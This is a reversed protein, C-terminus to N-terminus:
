EELRVDKLDFTSNPNTKYGKVKSHTAALLESTFLPLAPVEGMITPLVDDQVLQVREEPTSATGARDIVQNVKSDNYYTIRGGEYFFAKLVLDPDISPPMWGTDFLHAGKEAYLLELWKATETPRFDVSLGIDELSSTIFEGYERTKPYFGVSTVYILPDLGNGNPFGAEALLAKAREPDYAYDPEVPKYGRFIPAIPADCVRGTNQMITNVIKNRDIAYSIAQRLKRNGMNPMKHKFILWKNETTLVTDLQLNATGEIEPIQETEIREIVDAGGTQLASLRTAPDGVYEYDFGDLGPRGGWYEDNASFKITEQSYSNFKFPGTGNMKDKLAKPNKVDSESMISTAPLTYLLGPYPEKTKIRVKSDDVIEVSLQERYWARHAANERTMYELSAKVAGADFPAGDHFNVDPRLSMELTLPDVYEWDLALQPKVEKNAWDLALLRDFTNWEAHINALITHSSPDWSGSFPEASLMTIRGRAGGQGGTEELCSSLFTGSLALGGAFLGGRRLFDKRTLARADTAIKASSVLKDRSDKRM